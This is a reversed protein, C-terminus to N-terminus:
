VTKVESRYIWNVLWLVSLVTLPLSIALYATWHQQGGSLIVYLIALAFYLIAGVWPWRWALLLGGVLLYVPVLHILLGLLTEWFGYGEGFVDLAFLSIFIAFLISLVRPAWYIFRRLGKNM